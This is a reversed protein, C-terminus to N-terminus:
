SSSIASSATIVLPSSKWRSCTCSKVGVGIVIEVSVQYVPYSGYVKSGTNLALVWFSFSAWRMNKKQYLGSSRRAMSLSSRRIPLASRM